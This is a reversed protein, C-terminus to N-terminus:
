TLACREAWPPLPPRFILRNSRRPAPLRGLDMGQCVHNTAGKGKRQRSAIFSVAGNSRAQQGSQFARPIQEGVLPVIGVAQALVQALRLNDRDNGATRVAFAGDSIIFLSVFAPM